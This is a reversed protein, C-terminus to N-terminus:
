KVERYHPEPRNDREGNKLSKSKPACPAAFGHHIANEIAIIAQNSGAILCSRLHSDATAPPMTVHKKDSWYILGKDWAERFQPNDLDPPLTREAERTMASNPPKGSEREIERGNLERGNLRVNADGAQREPSALTVGAQREPSTECALWGMAELVPFATAFIESPARTKLSLSVPDHPEGNTKVLLGRKPCKSAVQLILVWAAFLLPGDPRTILETYKEGDHTNPIPVWRLDTIVRSRNNEYITDWKSVRFTKV